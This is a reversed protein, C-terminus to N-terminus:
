YLDYRPYTCGDGGVALAHKSIEKRSTEGTRQTDGAHWVEGAEWDKRIYFVQGDKVRDRAEAKNGELCIRGTECLQRVRSRSIGLQGALLIDTRIKMGDALRIEAESWMEEKCPVPTDVTQATYENDTVAPVAKNKAFLERSTGYKIALNRDNELFGRYEASDMREPEIREYIGMNWSTGCIGCRYILWVDLLRGNANVRFKGSNEYETKKGCKTCRRIVAPLHAPTVIWKKRQEPKM